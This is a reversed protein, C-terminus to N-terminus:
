EFVAIEESVIRVKRTDSKNGSPLLFRVPITDGIEGDSAAISRMKLVLNVTQYVVSITRGRRVAPLYQVSSHNLVNGEKVSAVVRRGLLNGTAHFSEDTDLERNEMRFDKGAIRMGIELNRTAVPINVRKLIRAVLHQRLLIKEMGGSQSIIDAAIVRKGAFMKSVDSPLRFEFHCNEYCDLKSDKELHLVLSEKDELKGPIKEIEKLLISHLEEGRIERTLPLIWVGRGYVRSLKEPLKSLMSILEVRGVYRPVRQGEILMHDSIKESSGEGDVRALDKLQASDSRIVAVNKLYLSYAQIEAGQLFSILILGSVSLSIVQSKVKFFFKDLIEHSIRKM